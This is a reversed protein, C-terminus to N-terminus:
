VSYITRDFSARPSFFISRYLARSYIPAANRADLTYTSVVSSRIERPGRAQAARSFDNSKKKIIKKQRLHSQFPFSM